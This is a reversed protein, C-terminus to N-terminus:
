ARDEHERPVFFIMYLGVPYSALCMILAVSSIEFWGALKAIGILALGLTGIILLVKGAFHFNIPVFGSPQSM